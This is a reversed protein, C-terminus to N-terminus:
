GPRAKIRLTVTAKDSGGRGDSARYVFRVIGNFNKKPKYTFAGNPGLTLKGKKPRSVVTARLADGDADTDNRLVGRAPVKLVRDEVGRYSDNRAVPRSNPREFAGIDCRLGQPRKVGRQDTPPCGTNTGADIAPSGALLARTDTPGGNNRLPGLLPDVNKLDSAVFGTAGTTDGILNHGQSSFAGQADPNTSASNRAVITNALTLTGDSNYIGGGNIATNGSVTSHKLTVKQASGLNEENFVGGGNGGANNGSVTSNTLGLTGVLTNYIGAGDTAATNGRVTTNTLQVEGNENMIGGGFGRISGDSIVRTANNESVTSNTLTLTGDSNYIGAGSLATGGSITLGSITVNTFQKILLVRSADNGSVTIKRAGPGEIILDNDIDLQGLTLTITGSLFSDFVITDSVGNVNAEQIAARLTCRPEIKEQLPATACTGNGPNNDGADELSNVTIITDAHVPSPALLSGISAAVLVALLWLAFARARGVWMVESAASRIM